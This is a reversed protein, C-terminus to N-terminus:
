RSKASRVRVVVAVADTNEATIGSLLVAGGSPLRVTCRQRLVGAQPLPVTQTAANAEGVINLDLADGDQPTVVDLVVSLLISEGDAGVMPRVVAQLGSAVVNLTVDSGNADPVPEIDQVVVRELGATLAIRQGNLCAARSAGLLELNPSANQGALWEALADTQEADLVTGAELADLKENLLAHPVQAALLEIEVTRGHAAEYAGLLEEVEQQIAKTHRVTLLGADATIGVAGDLEEWRGAPLSEILLQALGDTIGVLDVTARDDDEETDGFIAVGGGGGGSGSGRGFVPRLGIPAADFDQVPATIMRVDFVRASVYPAIAKRPTTVLVVGDRVDWDAEVSRCVWTLADEGSMGAAQLSVPQAELGALAPDIVVPVGIQRELFEVARPFPTEVLEVDLTKKLAAKVADSAQALAISTPWVALLALVALLVFGGRVSRTAVIM